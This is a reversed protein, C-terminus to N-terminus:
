PWRLEHWLPHVAVAWSNKDVHDSASNIAYATAFPTGKGPDTEVQLSSEGMTMRRHVLDTQLASDDVTCDAQPVYAAIESGLRAQEVVFCIAYWYSAVNAFSASHLVVFSSLLCKLPEM